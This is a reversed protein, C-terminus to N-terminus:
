VMAIADQSELAMAEQIDHCEKSIQQNEQFSGQLGEHVARKLQNAAECQLESTLMCSVHGGLNLM